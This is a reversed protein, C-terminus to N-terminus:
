VLDGRPGLRPPRDIRCGKLWGPATPTYIQDLPHYGDRGYQLLLEDRKARSEPLRIDDIRTGYVDQWSADIVTALWHPVAVALGGLGSPESM